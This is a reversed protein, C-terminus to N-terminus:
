RGQRSLREIRQELDRRAEEGIPRRAGVARRYFAVAEAARGQKERLLGAIACAGGEVAADSDAVREQLAVAGDIDGAEATYHSRITEFEGAFLPCCAEALRCGTIAVRPLGLNGSAMVIRRIPAAMM